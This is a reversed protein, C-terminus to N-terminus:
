WVITLGVRVAPEGAAALQSQLLPTVSVRRRRLRENQREAAHSADIAGIAWAAIGAAIQTMALAHAQNSPATCADGGFSIIPCEKENYMVIGAAIGSLAVASLALGRLTEGAYIQGAGPIFIGLVRATQPNRYAPDAPSLSRTSDQARAFGLPLLVAVGLWIAIRRTFFAPHLRMLEVPFIRATPQRVGASTALCSTAADNPM